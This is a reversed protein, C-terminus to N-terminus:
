ICGSPAACARKGSKVLHILEAADDYVPFNHWECHDVTINKSAEAVRRSFQEGIYRGSVGGAQCGLFLCNKVTVDNGSVYIATRGPTEFTIGDIIINLSQDVKGLLGFNYSRSAPDDASVNNERPPSIAMIHKNPDAPGYKGDPRLRVFLKGDSKRFFFGHRPGPVGPKVEFTM